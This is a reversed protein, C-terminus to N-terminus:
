ASSEFLRTNMGSALSRSALTSAKSSSGTPDTNSRTGPASSKTRTSSQFGAQVLRGTGRTARPESCGESVSAPVGSSNIIKSATFHGVRDYLVRRPRWGDRPTFRKGRRQSCREDAAKGRVLDLGARDSERAIVRPGSRTMITQADHGRPRSRPFVRDEACTRPRSRGRDFRTAVGARDFGAPCAEFGASFSTRVERSRM